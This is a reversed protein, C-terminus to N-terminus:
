VNDWSDQLVTCVVTGQGIGNVKWKFKLRCRLKQYSASLFGVVM